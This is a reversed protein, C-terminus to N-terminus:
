RPGPLTAQQHQGARRRSYLAKAAPGVRRRLGRLLATEETARQLKLYVRPPLRPLLPSCRERLLTFFQDPELDIYRSISEFWQASLRAESQVQLLARTREKEYADLATDLDGHRQIHGALAIADEMALTTGSGISFHTTHAADGMLVTKGTYWRRNTLTRFNLWPSGAGNRFKGILRRGELQHEFLKELAALCDSAPMVDFGLGTWVEPPCEVIFTSADDGAQYAYCWLWGFDTKLFAFRFAEFIKETGLWIYKNLGVHAQTGFHESGLERLRSSVGDCAVILDAEPLESASAVARGFEVRVGVSRARETLIDLLRQRSISFGSGVTEVSEKGHVDAVHSLWRSASDSILRASEPDSRCLTELLDESFTVGWGYTSGPANRELVTVDHGPEGQKMLLAFYLGAPGGGVCVIKM